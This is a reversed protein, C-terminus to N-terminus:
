LRVALLVLLYIWLLTMFHWYLSAAGFAPGVGPGGDSRLRNRVYLLGVVGGLLHLAHLATLIYFFASSPNTALYLGQAALQRWAVLQGLVFLAGFVLTGDVWAATRWVPAPFSIVHADPRPRGRLASRRGLELTLSSAILLATNLYLIPPLRFHLWDGSAGQRVVLASTYAAFSMVITAVGVWVGTSAATRHDATPAARV